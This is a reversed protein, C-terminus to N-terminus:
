FPSTDNASGLRFKFKERMRRSFLEDWWWTSVTRVRASQDASNLKQEPEGSEAV